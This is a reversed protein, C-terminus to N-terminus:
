HMNWPWPKVNFTESVTRPPYVTDTFFVSHHWKSQGQTIKLSKAFYDNVTFSLYIVHLARPREADASSRTEMVTMDDMNEDTHHTCFQVRAHPKSESPSPRVFPWSSPSGSQVHFGPKVGDRECLRDCGPRYGVVPQTTSYLPPLPYSGSYSSLRNSSSIILCLSCTYLLYRIRTHGTVQYSEPWGDCTRWRLIADDHSFKAGFICLSRSWHFSTSVQDKSRVRDSRRPSGKGM